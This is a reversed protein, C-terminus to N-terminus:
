IHILSLEPEPEPEPTAKSATKPIPDPTPKSQSPDQNAASPAPPAENALNIRLTQSPSDANDQLQTVAIPEVAVILWSVVLGTLTFAALLAWLRSKPSM